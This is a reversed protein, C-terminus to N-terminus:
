TAANVGANVSGTLALTERRAAPSIQTRAAKPISDATTDPLGLDPRLQGIGPYQCM